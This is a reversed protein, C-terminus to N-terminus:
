QLENDARALQILQRDGEIEVYWVSTGIDGSMCVCRNSQSCDEAPINYFKEVSICDVAM